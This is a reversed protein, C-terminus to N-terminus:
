EAAISILEVEFKLLSNGPISQNGSEGYGLTPPIFLEYKAGPKMLKLAETWGPIVQNVGFEAPEGRKYSSDFEKGDLLTGKYHVKVKAGDKPSEGEGATIVRYQLGSATTVVGAEAKNKELFATAAELNATKEKEAKEMMKKQMFTQFEGIAAEVDEDSMAPTKGAYVEEMGRLFLAPSLNVGNKQMDKALQIGIAYSVKEELTKFESKVESKPEAAAADQARVAAPASLLAAFALGALFLKKM